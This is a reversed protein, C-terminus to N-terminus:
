DNRKPVGYLYHDHNRALDKPLGKCKGAWRLLKDSLDPKARSPRSRTVAQVKVETGDPLADPEDLVVMGGCVTGRLMM